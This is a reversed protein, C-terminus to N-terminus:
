LHMLQASKSKQELHIREELIVWRVSWSNLRMDFNGPVRGSAVGVVAVM